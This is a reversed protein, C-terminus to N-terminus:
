FHRYGTKTPVIEGDDPGIVRVGRTGDITGIRTVPVDVDPGRSTLADEYSPSATFLLVHDDDGGIM